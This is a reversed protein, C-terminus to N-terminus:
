KKAKRRFGALGILGSGLLWVAGPIPVESGAISFNNFTGGDVAVAGIMVSDIPTILNMGGLSGLLAQTNADYLSVSIDGESDTFVTLNYWADLTLENIMVGGLKYTGTPSDTSWNWANLELIDLDILVTYESHDNQFIDGSIFILGVAANLNGISDVRLQTEVTLNAQDYYQQNNAFSLAGPNGEVNNDGHYGKDPGDLTTFDWTPLVVSWNAGTFTPNDFDDVFAADATVAIFLFALALIFFKQKATM